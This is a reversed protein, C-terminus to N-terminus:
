SHPLLQDLLRELAQYSFHRRGLEHNHRTLQRRRAPDALLLRVQEVADDTLVGREIMVTEFGLSGIDPWYVPEYNNVLVPRRAVVAEVFANGFGEYTSFYTCADANAYADSLSYLRRGRATTQRVNSFHDGAFHVQRELDLEATLRRLMRPYEQDPEDRATGTIVLHLSPDRLRHVLQIATEIGKRAVIRTVQFLLTSQQPLGLDARLQSNYEDPQGFPADFDMVNPLVMVHEIGLRRLSAEAASNIVAHHVHPLRVPFCRELIRQVAVFPTSYREGREWYFDHDHTMAVLDTSEFVRQLAMGMTLHFPLACANEALLCEIQHEEIWDLIGHEIQAAESELRAILEQEQVPQGFFAMRQGEVALPHDFALQELLSVQVAGALDGEVQGTLLSVRHGMRELVTIWKETELAVGDVGGIRGIVIGIHM